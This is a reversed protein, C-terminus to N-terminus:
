SGEPTQIHALETQLFEKTGAGGSIQLWVPGYSPEVELIFNLFSCCQSEREVFEAIQVLRGSQNLFRFAYGNELEHTEQVAMFLSDTVSAFQEREDESLMTHNCAFKTEQTKM